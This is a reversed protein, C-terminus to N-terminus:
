DGFARHLFAAMQGRSVVKQPCYRTATCGTTIGAAAIRNIARHHPSSDDDTFFDESTNPLDLARDLFTAMQARTVPENPCFKGGGCGTTIGAKALRNIAREHSSSNDDTFFDQSTGPLDMARDLFTAMQARTVPDDPCYSGGGCGTTIGNEFAWVIDDAFKHGAIDDFPLDSSVRLVIAENEEPSGTKHLDSGNFLTGDTFLLLGTESPNSGEAGFDLVTMDTSGGAPVAGFGFSGDILPMFREGMPAFEMGLIQDTVRGAFYIDVALLDASLPTLFDDGTLGIDEACIWLVTNASNTAHDIFFLPTAVNSGAAQVFSFSDRICLVSGV